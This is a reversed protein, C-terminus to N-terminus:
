SLSAMEPSAVGHWCSDTATLGLKGQRAGMRRGPGVLELVKAGLGMCLREHHRYRVLGPVAARLSRLFELVRPFHEVRRGRVVQWSAAAALRLTAPGAGLPTDM